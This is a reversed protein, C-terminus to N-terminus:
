IEDKPGPEALHKRGLRAREGEVAREYDARELPDM